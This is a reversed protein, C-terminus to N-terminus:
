GRAAPARAPELEVRSGTRASEYAGDIVALVNRAERASSPPEGGRAIAQVFGELLRTTGIVASNRPNRALTRRSVGQEAWALGSLGFQLMAGPREARKMGLQLTARGGFSARLSALECDARLDIYRTGAPCLRDITVQGLRGESFELTLLQIADADQDDHFGASHRAYVATPLEGFVMTQLDVLHVGGELLTRNAMGARWPTPEKWPPENVLQWLQCFVPRGYRGSAVGDRVARFIPNERFQHNVSIVRQAAAAADIVRDADSASEVFPKECFIHCGEDIARLCLEAHSSPPTAIVVVEPRCKEFLEDLSDYTPAGTAQAWSARREPSLDFGGTLEAGPIQRIGPVHYLLSARGLGISAFRV